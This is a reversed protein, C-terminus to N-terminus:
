SLTAAPKARPWDERTIPEHNYLAKTSYYIPMPIEHAWGEERDAGRSDGPLRLMVDCLPLWEKDLDLWDGWKRPFAIAQYHSWHPCYPAYGWGMLQDFAKMAQHVNAATDGLTIPGSIYVRTRRKEM